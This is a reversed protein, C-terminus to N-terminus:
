NQVVWTAYVAGDTTSTSILTLFATKSAAISTPAVSGLWIWAPFTLTRTSADASIFVQKARGSALNSTNLTLNGTLSLTQLNNSTLDLTVTGTGYSLASIVTEYRTSSTLTLGSITGSTGIGLATLQGAVSGANILARGFSDCPIEEWAGTGATSRGILNGTALRVNGTNVFNNLYTADVTDGNTATFGANLSLSM